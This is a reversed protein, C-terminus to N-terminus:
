RRQHKEPSLRRQTRRSRAATTGLRKSSRCFPTLHTFIREIFIITHYKSQLMVSLVKPGEPLTQSPAHVQRVGHLLSKRVVQLPAEEERGRRVGGQLRHLPVGRQRSGLEVSEGLIPIMHICKPLHFFNIASFVTRVQNKITSAVVSAPEGAISAITSSYSGVTNIVQQYANRTGTLICCCKMITNQGFFFIYIHGGAEGQSSTEGPWLHVIEVHLDPHHQPPINRSYMNAWEYYVVGHEPCELHSGGSMYNYGATLGNDTSRSAKFVMETRRDTAKCKKCFFKRNDQEKDYVCTGGRDSLPLCSHGGSHSKALGCRARCIQCIATCSLHQIAFSTGAVDSDLPDIFKQALTKLEKYIQALQREKRGDPADLDDKVRSHLRAQHEKRAESSVGAAEALKDERDAQQPHGQLRAGM